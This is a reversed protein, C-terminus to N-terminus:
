GLRRLGDELLLRCERVHALPPYCANIACTSEGCTMSEPVFGRTAGAYVHPIRGRPIYAIAPNVSLLKVDNINVFEEHIPSLWVTKKLDRRTEVFDLLCREFAIYNKRELEIGAKQHLKEITWMLDARNVM